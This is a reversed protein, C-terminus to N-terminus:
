RSLRHHVEHLSHSVHALRDCGRVQLRATHHDDTPYPTLARLAGARLLPRSPCQAYSHPRAGVARTKAMLEAAKKADVSEPGGIQVELEHYLEVYKIAEPISEIRM